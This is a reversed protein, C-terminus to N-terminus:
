TIHLWPMLPTPTTIPPMMLLWLGECDPFAYKFIPLAVKIIQEVM